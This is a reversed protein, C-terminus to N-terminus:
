KIRKLFELIGVIAGAIAGLTLIIRILAKISFSSKTFLDYMENVQKVVGIKGDKDDGFLAADIRIIAQKFQQHELANIDELM